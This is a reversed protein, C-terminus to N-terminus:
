NLNLSKTIEVQKEAVWLATYKGALRSTVSDTNHRKVTGDAAMAEMSITWKTLTTNTKMQLSINLEQTTVHQTWNATTLSLSTHYQTLQSSNNTYFATACSAPLLCTVPLTCIIEQRASLSLVFGAHFRKSASMLFCHTTLTHLGPWATTTKNASAGTNQVYMPSSNRQKQYYHWNKKTVSM